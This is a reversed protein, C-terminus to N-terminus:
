NMSLHPRDYRLDIWNWVGALRGNNQAVIKDLQEIKKEPSVCYDLDDIPFRGFRIDTRKSNGVQAYMRLYPESPNIRGNYNRVDITTIQDIYPKDKILSLLRIGDSLDPSNWKEGAKPPSSQVGDIVIFKGMEIRNTSIPLVVAENDILYFKGPENETAVLAYPRRFRAYIDITRDRHKIVKDVTAIWPNSIAIRYVDRSLEEDLISKGKLSLQIESVVRRAIDRPLWPPIDMLRLQRVKAEDKATSFFRQKLFYGGGIIIVSLGIVITVKIIFTVKIRRQQNDGDASKSGKGNRGM